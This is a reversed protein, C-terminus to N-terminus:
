VKWSNSLVPVHYKKHNWGPISAVAKQIANVM